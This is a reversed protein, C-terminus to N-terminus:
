RTLLIRPTLMGALRTFPVYCWLRVTGGRGVANKFLLWASKVPLVSHCLQTDEGEAPMEESICHKMCTDVFRTVRCEVKLMGEARWCRLPKARERCTRLFYRRATRSRWKWQFEIYWYLYIHKQQCLGIFSFVPLGGVTRFQALIIFPLLRHGRGIYLIGAKTAKEQKNRIQDSIQMPRARPCNNASARALWIVTGAADTRKCVLLLHTPPDIM